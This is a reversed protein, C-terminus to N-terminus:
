SRGSMNSGPAPPYVITAVPHNLWGAIAHWTYTTCTDPVAPVVVDGGSTAWGDGTSLGDCQEQSFSLLPPAEPSPPILRAQLPSASVIVHPPAESTLQLKLQPRMIQVEPKAHKVGGLIIRAAVIDGRLVIYGYSKWSRGPPLQSSRRPGLPTILTQDGLPNIPDCVEQGSDDLVVVQPANLGSMISIAHHSVNRVSLTVRVLANAPYSRRGIQLTIRLGHTVVAPPAPSTRRAHATASAATALVFALLVIRRM